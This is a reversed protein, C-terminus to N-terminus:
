FKYSAQLGVRRLGREGNLVGQAHAPQQTGDQNALTAFQQPATQSFLNQAFVAVRMSEGIRAGVRAGFIAHGQFIYYDSASLDALREKSKYQVDFGIFGNIRETLPIDYDAYLGASFRPADQLQQGSLDTGDQALFGNPYEIVNYIFNANLRLNRGIRGFIDGEIGKSKIGDINFPSCTTANTVDVSCRASQYGKVDMYFASLNVLLRGGMWGSKVGLEYSTPIEPAVYAANDNNQLPSYQANKYGRSVTGYLMLDRNPKYEAGVRWTLQNDDSKLRATRTVNTNLNTTTGNFEVRAENIRAGAFVAFAGTDYRAEGFGSLNQARWYQFNNFKGPQIFFTCAPLTPTTVCAGPALAAKQTYTKISQGIVDGTISSINSDFYFGGVTFSLPRTPDSSIRVEQTFQDYDSVVGSQVAVVDVAEPLNDIDNYTTASLERYSTIATFTFGGPLAFELQGSLGLREYTQSANADSCIEYNDISPVLGCYAVRAATSTNGNTPATYPRFPNTIVRPSGPTAGPATVVNGLDRFTLFYGNGRKEDSYEAAFNLTIDDTPNVLLRGRVGWEDRFDDNNQWINELIGQTWASYGTVRLGAIGAIPVNVAGRVLQKGFESGAFDDFSLDTSVEGSFENVNPAITTINIVGASVSQGFLTGQPGRLVEVRAIDTLNRNNTLGQVVGDVVIGVSPEAGRSRSFTGVGRIYGGGGSGGPNEAMKLSSAVRGLDSIENVSQAQLQDGAVVTVPIPVDQVREARRQATVVIEGPSAATAEDSVPADQAFAPACVSMGLASGLLLSRINFIHIVM